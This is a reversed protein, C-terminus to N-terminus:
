SEGGQLQRAVDNLLHSCFAIGNEAADLDGAALSELAERRIEIAHQLRRAADELAALDDDHPTAELVRRFGNFAALARRRTDARRVGHLLSDLTM